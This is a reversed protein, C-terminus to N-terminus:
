NKGFSSLLADLRAIRDKSLDASTPEDNEEKGVNEFFATASIQPEAGARTYNVNIEGLLSVPIKKDMSEELFKMLEDSKEFFLTKIGNECKIAVTSKDKGCLDYENIYVDTILFVPRPNSQGYPGYKNVNQIWLNIDEAKIKFNYYNTNDDDM